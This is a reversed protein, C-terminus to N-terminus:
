YSSRFEYSFRSSQISIEELCQIIVTLFSVSEYPQLKFDGINDFLGSITFIKDNEWHIM